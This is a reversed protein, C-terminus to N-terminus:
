LSPMTIGAAYDPLYFQQFSRTIYGDKSVLFAEQSDVLFKIHNVQSVIM